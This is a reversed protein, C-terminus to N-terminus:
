DLGAYELISQEKDDIMERSKNYIEELHDCINGEGEWNDEIIEEGLEDRIKRLVFTCLFIDDIYGLPGYIEEPIVDYPAVFYAIASNIILRSKKPVRSDELLNTLLRFLEPGFYIIEDFKGRYTELNEKLTEYFGKFDTLRKRKM